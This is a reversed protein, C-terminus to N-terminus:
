RSGSVSPSSPVGEPDPPDVGAAGFLSAAAAIEENLGMVVLTDGAALLVDAGPNPLFDDGRRVAVATIGHLRRLDTDGLRQGAL